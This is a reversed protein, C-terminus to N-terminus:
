IDGPSALADIGGPIPDGAALVRLAVRGTACEFRLGQCPVPVRCGEAGSLCSHQGCGSALVALAAALCVCRLM